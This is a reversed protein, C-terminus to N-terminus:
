IKAQNRYLPNDGGFLLVSQKNKHYIVASILYEPAASPKIIQVRLDLRVPHVPM